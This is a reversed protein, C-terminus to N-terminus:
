FLLSKLCFTKWSVVLDDHGVRSIWLQDLNHCFIIHEKSLKTKITSPRQTVRAVLTVSHAESYESHPHITSRLGLALRLPCYRTTRRTTMTFFHISSILHTTIPPIALSFPYYGITRRTTTTVTVYGPLSRKMSPPNQPSTQPIQFTQPCTPIKAGLVRRFSM